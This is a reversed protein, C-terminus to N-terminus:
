SKTYLPLVSLPLPLLLLLLLLLFLVLLRSLLLLLITITSGASTPGLLLLRYEVIIIEHYPAPLHLRSLCGITM